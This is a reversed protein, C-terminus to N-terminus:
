TSKHSLLEPCIEGVDFKAIDPSAVSGTRISVKVKTDWLFRGIKFKENYTCSTYIIVKEGPSPNSFVEQPIEMIKSVPIGCKKCAPFGPDLVEVAM